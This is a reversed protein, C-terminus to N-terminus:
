DVSPAALMGVGGGGVIGNGRSGQPRGVSLHEDQVGGGRAGRGALVWEGVGVNWYGGGGRDVAIHLCGGNMLLRGLNKSGIKVVRVWVCGRPRSLGPSVLSWAALPTPPNCPHHAPLESSPECEMDETRKVMRKQHM